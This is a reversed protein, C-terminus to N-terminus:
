MVHYRLRAKSGDGEHDYRQLLHDSNDTLEKLYHDHQRELELTAVINLQHLSEVLKTREQETQEM